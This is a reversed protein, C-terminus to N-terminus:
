RRATTKRAAKVMAVDNTSWDFGDGGNTLMLRANGVGTLTFIARTKRARHSDNTIIMM